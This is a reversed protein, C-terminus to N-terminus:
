YQLTFTRGIGQVPRVIAVGLASQSNYKDPISEGDKTIEVRYFGMAVGPPDADPISMTAVGDATTTGVAVPYSAGLFREPLFRVTAQVLPKGNHTVACIYSTRGFGAQLWGDIAAQIMDATIEKGDPNLGRLMSRLAACKDLEDGSIKGDTDADYEEMAAQAAAAPKVSPPHIAKAGMDCGSVVLSCVAVMGVIVLLSSRM